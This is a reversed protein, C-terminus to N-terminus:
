RSTRREEQDIKVLDRDDQYAMRSRPHRSAAGGFRTTGGAHFEKPLSTLPRIGNSEHIVQVEGPKATKAKRLHIRAYNANGKSGFEIHRRLIAGNEVSTRLLEGLRAMGWFAVLAM